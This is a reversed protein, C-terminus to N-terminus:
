RAWGPRRARSSPAGYRRAEQRATRRRPRGPRRHRRQRGRHDQGRRGPSKWGHTRPGYPGAHRGARFDETEHIADPRGPVHRHRPALFARKDIVGMYNKMCVTLRSLSHHKVVPVNIVLDCEYIEPYVPHMKLREGHIDMDRFRSRDLYVIKAGAKKAAAEIGSLGYCKAPLGCPNDGVKVTKAGAELCLRVLTAVVDPNTNAAQQPNREWGINPKVWVVDGRSVFRKLGGLGEIAKETLKVAIREMDKEAPKAGTWRAITMDVPKAPPKEAAFLGQGGLAVMGGAVASQALFERRSHKHM